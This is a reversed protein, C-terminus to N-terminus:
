PVSDTDISDGGKAIEANESISATVKLTDNQNMDKLNLMTSPTNSNDITVSVRNKTDTDTTGATSSFGRFGFYCFAILLLAFFIIGFLLTKGNSIIIGWVHHLYSKKNDSKDILNVHSDSILFAFLAIALTYTLSYIIYEAINNAVRFTGISTVIFSLFATFLGLIRLSSHRSKEIEDKQQGVRKEFSKTAKNISRKLEKTKVDFFRQTIRSSLANFYLVYEEYKEKLRNISIANCYYSAFFFSDTFNDCNYLMFCKWAEEKEKGERKTFFSTFCEQKKDYKYFCHEFYPRFIPPISSEFEGIYEKLRDLIIQLLNLLNNYMEININLTDLKDIQNKIFNLGVFFFYPSYCEPNTTTRYFESIERITDEISELGKNFDAIKCIVKSKECYYDQGKSIWNNYSKIDEYSFLESTSITTPLLDKTLVANKNENKINITPNLAEKLRYENIRKELQEETEKVTSFFLKVNTLGILEKNDIDYVLKYLLSATKAKVMKVVTMFDEDGIKEVDEIRHWLTTLKGINDSTAKYIHDIATMEIVSQTFRFLSDSNLSPSNDINFNRTIRNAYEEPYTKIEIRRTNKEDIANKIRWCLARLLSNFVFFDRVFRPKPINSTIELQNELSVTKELIKSYDQVFLYEANLLSKNIHYYFKIEQQQSVDSNITTRNREDAKVDIEKKVIEEVTTGSSNKLMYDIANDYVKPVGYKESVQLFDKIIGIAKDLHTTAEDNM